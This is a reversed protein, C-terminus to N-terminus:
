LYGKVPAEDFIKWLSAVVLGGDILGKDDFGITVDM